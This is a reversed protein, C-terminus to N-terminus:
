FPISATGPDETLCPFTWPTVCVPVTWSPRFGNDTCSVARANRADVFDGYEDGEAECGGCVGDFVGNSVIESPHRSCRTYTDGVYDGEAFEREVDAMERDADREYEERSCVHPDSCPAYDDFDMTRDM